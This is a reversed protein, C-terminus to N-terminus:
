PRNQYRRSDDSPLYANAHGSRARKITKRYNACSHTDGCIVDSSDPTNVACITGHFSFLPERAWFLSYGGLIM